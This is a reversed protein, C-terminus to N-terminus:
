KESNALFRTMDFTSRPKGFYYGQIEQCGLQQVVRLDSETEVGECLVKINFGDALVTVFAVM